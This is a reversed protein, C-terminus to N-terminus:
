KGQAPVEPNGTEVFRALRELQETLVRDISPALEALGGPRYGGVTYVLTVRTGAGEPVFTFTLTGVVALNQLPGLGGQLRLLRYPDAFVVVMHRADGGNPLRECFCGGAHGEIFLNSATRSFTHESSWWRGVDDILNRYVRQPAAAIIATSQVTFGDPASDVVKAGAPVAPALLLLPLLVRLSTRM